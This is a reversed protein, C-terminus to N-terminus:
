FNKWYYGSQGKSEFVRVTIKSIHHYVFINKIEKFLRHCIYYAFRETSTNDIPLILVESKPFMYEKQNNHNVYFNHGRQELRLWPNQSPLLVKEDLDDCIQKVLPKIDSFNYVLGGKELNGEIIAEVQYNHGHLRESSGDPFILFHAASFKFYEKDLHIGFHEQQEFANEEKPSIEPLHLHKHSKISLEMNEVYILRIAYQRESGFSIATEM